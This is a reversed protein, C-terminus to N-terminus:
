SGSVSLMVAIGTKTLIHLLRATVSISNASCNPCESRLIRDKTRFYFVQSFDTAPSAFPFTDIPPGNKATCKGM